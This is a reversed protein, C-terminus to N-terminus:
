ASLWELQFKFFGQRSLFQLSYESEGYAYSSGHYCLFVADYVKLFDKIEKNNKVSLEQYVNAYKGYQKVTILFYENTM